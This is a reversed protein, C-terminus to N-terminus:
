NKMVEFWGTFKKGDRKNILHYFYMGVSNDEPKWENFAGEGSEFVLKGWRDYINLTFTNPLSLIKFSDNLADGNLTVVNPIIFPVLKVVVETSQVCVKDFGVSDIANLTTKLEGPLIWTTDVPLRNTRIVQYGPLQDHQFNYIYRISDSAPVV